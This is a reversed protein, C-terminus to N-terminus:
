FRVKPRQHSFCECHPCYVLPLDPTVLLERCCGSCQLIRISDGREMARKVRDIPLINISQNNNNNNDHRAQQHAKMATTTKTQQNQKAITAGFAQKHKMNMAYLMAQQEMVMTRTTMAHLADDDDHDNPFEWAAPDAAPYFVNSSEDSESFAKTSSCVSEDKKYREHQQQQQHHHHHQQQQQQQQQAGTTSTTAGHRSVLPAAAMTWPGLAWRNDPVLGHQQQQQQQPSILQMHQEVRPDVMESLLSRRSSMFREQQSAVTAAWQQWQDYGQEYDAYEAAFPDHLASGGGGGGGSDKFSYFNMTPMLTTALM